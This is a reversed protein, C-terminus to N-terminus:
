LIDRSVLDPYLIRFPCVYRQANGLMAMKMVSSFSDSEIMTVRMSTIIIM